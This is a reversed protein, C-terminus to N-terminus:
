AGQLFLDWSVQPLRGQADIASIRNQLLEWVLHQPSNTIQPEPLWNGNIWSLRMYTRWETFSFRQYLDGMGLLYYLVIGLSWSDLATTTATIIAANDNALKARALEPSVICYTTEIRSRAQQDDQRCVTGFDTIKAIVEGSDLQHLLINSPKLDRHLLGQSHFWALANVLDIFMRRVDTRFITVVPKHLSGGNCYELLVRRKTNGDRKRYEFVELLQVFAPRGRVFRYWEIEEPAVGTASAYLRGTGVETAISVKKFAGRGKPDNQKSRNWHIVVRGDTTVHFARPAGTVSAGQYISRGSPTVAARAVGASQVVQSVIALRAVAHEVQRTLDDTQSGFCASAQALYSMSSGAQRVLRSLQVCAREAAWREENALEWPRDGVSIVRRAIVELKERSQDEFVVEAGRLLSHVGTAGQLRAELDRYSIPAVAM